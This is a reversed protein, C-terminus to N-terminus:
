PGGCRFPSDDRGQKVGREQVGVKFQSRQRLQELGVLRQRTHSLGGLSCLVALPSQGQGRADGM